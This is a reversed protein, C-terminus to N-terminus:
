FLYNRFHELGAYKGHKDDGSADHHSAFTIRTVTYVAKTNKVLLRMTVCQVKVIVLVM